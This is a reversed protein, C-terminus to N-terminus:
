RSGWANEQIDSQNMGKAITRVNTMSKIAQADQFASKLFTVKILIKKLNYLKEM